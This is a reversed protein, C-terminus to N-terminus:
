QGLAGDLSLCHPHTLNGTPSGHVQSGCENKKKRGGGLFLSKHPPVGLGLCRLAQKHWRQPAAWISLDGIKDATYWDARIEDLVSLIMTDM